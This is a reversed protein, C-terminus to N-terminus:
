MSEIAKLIKVMAWSFERRELHVWNIEKRKQCMFIYLVELFELILFMLNRVPSSKKLLRLVWHKILADIKYMYPPTQLKLGYFSHFDKMMSCLVSLKWLRVTRGKQWVMRNFLIHHVLRGRSALRKVFTLFSTLNMNLGM